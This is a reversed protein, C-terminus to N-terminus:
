AQEQAAQARGETIGAAHGQAGALAALTRGQDEVRAILDDMRHNVAQHTEKGTQQTELTVATNDAVADVAATAQAVAQTVQPAMVALQAGNHQSQVTAAQATTAADASKKFGLLTPIFLLILGGLLGFAQAKDGDYKFIIGAGVAVCIAAFGGFVRILTNDNM